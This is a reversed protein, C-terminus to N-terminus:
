IVGQEKLDDAGILEDESSYLWGVDPMPEGEKDGGPRRRMYELFNGHYSTHVPKGDEGSHETWHWLDIDPRIWIEGGADTWRRCFGYDEGYWVWDHAGHNFLDVHPRCREGYLLEPYKAMFVNIAQRTVKLFGAPVADAKICGDERQIPTLDPQTALKGMYPEDLGPLKFRYTGAVIPGPTSILKLLEGPTWSLDHDLFVIVDADADLAKRLMTNRAASIYANGIENCSKSVWGAGTVVPDSMLMSDIFQPFPRKITPTCFVVTGPTEGDIFPPKKDKM